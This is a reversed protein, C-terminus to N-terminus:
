TLENITGDKEQVTSILERITQQHEETDPNLTPGSGAHQQRLNKLNYVDTQNKLMLM